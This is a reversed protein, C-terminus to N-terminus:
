RAIECFGDESRGCLFNGFGKRGCQDTHDRGRQSLEELNSVSEGLFMTLIYDLHEKNGSFIHFKRRFSVDGLGNKHAARKDTM